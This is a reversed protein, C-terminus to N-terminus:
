VGPSVQIWVSIVITVGYTVQYGKVQTGINVGIYSLLRAICGQDLVCNSDRDNKEIMVELINRKLRQDYTVNAKLKDAYLPNNQKQGGPDPPRDGSM